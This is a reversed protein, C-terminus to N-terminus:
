TMKRESTGKEGVVKLDEETCRWRRGASGDDDDDAYSDLSINKVKEGNTQITSGLCKLDEVTRIQGRQVRVEM